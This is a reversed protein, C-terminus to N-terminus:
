EGWDNLLFDLPMDMFDQSMQNKLMRMQLDGGQESVSVQGGDHFALGNESESCEYSPQPQGTNSELVMSANAGPVLVSDRVGDVVLGTSAPIPLRSKIDNLSELCRSASRSIAALKRLCTQAKTVSYEHGWPLETRQSSADAQGHNVLSSALLVLAAQFLFYTAYWAVGQHLASEYTTCFEAVDHITQMAVHLCKEEANESTPLFSHYKQAGRWLLIRLNQEKWLVVARPARFWPPVDAAVFYKPLNHRWVNLDRERAEASRYEIKAGASKAALFEAYIADAIRALQAQAIIASYTTPYSAASPATASPLLGKDDINRPFQTDVFDGLMTPPRGTTINFGSEFCYTAWFLQRRREHGIAGDQGPLERHLGLELAMRCALGIFNYGTNTHDRKQLYNGILLFAQLTEFTGSELMQISLNARAAAYYHTNSHETESHTLWHGISLVMYYLVRWPSRAPAQRQVAALRDRFTKEHIIPYCTNYLNFYADVLCNAAHSLSLDSIEPPLLEVSPTPRSRGHQVSSQVKNIGRSVATGIEELLQSGSSSGLYGADSTALVAMGDTAVSLGHEPSDFGPSLSGEHWEYRNPPSADQDGDEAEQATAACSALGAHQKLVSEIDIDRHLSQLLSQLQACRREAADLNRRTLPTRDPPTDFSCSKGARLCYSCPGNETNSRLCRTKRRQCNLCARM